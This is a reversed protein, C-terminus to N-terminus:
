PVVADVVPQLGFAKAVQEYAQQLSLEDGTVLCPTATALCDAIIRHRLIAHAEIWREYASEREAQTEFMELYQNRPWSREDLVRRQFGLSPVIYFAKGSTAVAGITSPHGFLVDVVGSKISERKELEAALLPTYMVSWTWYTDALEEPSQEFFWRLSAGAELTERICKLRPDSDLAGDKMYETPADPDSALREIGHNAELMSCITSKGACSAGGLWFVDGM